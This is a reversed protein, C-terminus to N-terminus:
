FIRIECVTMPFKRSNTEILRNLSCIANFKFSIHHIQSREDAQDCVIAMLGHGIGDVMFFSM